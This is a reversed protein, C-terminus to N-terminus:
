VYAPKLNTYGLVYRELAVAEDLTRIFEQPLQLYSEEFDKKEKESLITDYITENVNPFPFNWRAFNLIDNIDEMGKEIQGVFDYNVSPDCIRCLPISPAWHPNYNEKKHKTSKNEMPVLFVWSLFAKLSIFVPTMTCNVIGYKLGLPADSRKQYEEIDGCISRAINSRFYIHFPDDSQGFFKDRYASVVKDVPDRVFVFKDYTKMINEREAGEHDKLISKDKWFNHQHPYAIKELPKVNGKLSEADHKTDSLYLFIRKMNSSFAKAIACYALKEKNALFVRNNFPYATNKLDANEGYEERCRSRVLAARAWGSLSSIDPQAQNLVLQSSYKGLMLWTYLEFFAAILVISLFVLKWPARM